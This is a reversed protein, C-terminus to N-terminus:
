FYLPSFLVCVFELSHLCPLVPAASDLFYLLCYVFWFAFLCPASVPSTLPMPCPNSNSVSLLYLVQLYSQILVPLFTCIMYIQMCKCMQNIGTALNNYLQFLICNNWPRALNGLLPQKTTCSKRITLGFGKGSFFAMSTWFSLNCVVSRFCSSAPVLVPYLFRLGSVCSCLNIYFWFCTNSCVYLLVLHLSFTLFLSLFLCHSLFLSLTWLQTRLLLLPFPLPPTYWWEM